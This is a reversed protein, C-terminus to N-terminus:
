FVKDPFELVALKLAIAMMGASRIAIGQDM